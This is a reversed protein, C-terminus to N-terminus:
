KWKRTKKSKENRKEVDQRWEERNNYSREEDKARDSM